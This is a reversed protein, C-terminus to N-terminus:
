KRANGTPSYRGIVFPEGVSATRTASMSPTDRARCALHQLPHLGFAEDLAALVLLRDERRLSPVERLTDAAVPDDLPEERVEHAVRRGLRVDLGIEQAVRERVLHDLPDGLAEPVRLSARMAPGDVHLEFLRLVPLELREGVESGPM